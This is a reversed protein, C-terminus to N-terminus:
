SLGYKRAKAAVTKHTIRLEKAAANFSGCQKLAKAIIRKEYEEWPLVASEEDLQRVERDAAEGKIYSPLAAVTITDSDMLTIVREIVNELERVNGLWKYRMLIDMAEPTISRVAKGTTVSIKEIFHEVLLPIDDIRERLPPLIIPIVNLRYYLDDRFTGDKVMDELHRNTAAIIRVDVHVTEEGGVRDFEKQQLVRLLKVQMKKDMEGIEDLFITGHDALEFKGLKRKVAGTFAGKEHGFLESELLTGPIAGCNVRIFPGRRRESAYHIGEAIVEKGTGSEGRILVTAGSNAAKSALALVDIVKGSKGIYNAFANATKKTRLLEQELYEAKASVQSLRAMLNQLETIDKIVSVVGAIEGNVFIPNVNAVVTTGDKKRSISGIRAVGTRLVACRNGEPATKFVNQGMVMEPTKHVIRLYSPNVYTIEGTRDVVCIGDQVAELIMQLREQMLANEHLLKDMEHIKGPERMEFDGELFRVMEYVAQRGADGEASVFLSDGKGIKLAVLKMLSRMEFRESRQNRLFLPTAYKESLEQARQVIMAAIRAHIGSDHHVVAEQEYM